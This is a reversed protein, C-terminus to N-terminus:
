DNPIYTKPGGKTTGHYPNFRCDNSCYGSKLYIYHTGEPVINPCEPNKCISRIVASEPYPEVYRGEMDIEIEFKNTVVLYAILDGDDNTIPIEMEGPLQSLDWIDGWKEGDLYWKNKGFKSNLMDEFKDRCDEDAYLTGKATMKNYVEYWNDELGYPQMSRVVFGKTQM